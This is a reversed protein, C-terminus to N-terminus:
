YNASEELKLKKAKRTYGQKKFEKIEILKFKGEGRKGIPQKRYFKQVTFPKPQIVTTYYGSDIVEIPVDTENQYFCNMEKWKRNKKDLVKNKVEAFQLFFQASLVSTMLFKLTNMEDEDASLVCWSDKSFEQFLNFDAHGPKKLNRFSDANLSLKSSGYGTLTNRCFPIIVMDFSREEEFPPAYLYFVEIGSIIVFGISAKVQDLRWFNDIMCKISESTAAKSFYMVRKGRVDLIDKLQTAIKGYSPKRNGLLKPHVQFFSKDVQGKAIMQLSPFNNRNIKM